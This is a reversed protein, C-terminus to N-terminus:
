LISPVTCSMECTLYQHPMSDSTSQLPFL